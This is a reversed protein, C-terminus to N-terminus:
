KLAKRAQEDNPQYKLHKKLKRQKNIPIRRPGDAYRIKQSPSPGTIHKPM